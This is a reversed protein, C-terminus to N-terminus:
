NTVTAQKEILFVLRKSRAEEKRAEIYNDM